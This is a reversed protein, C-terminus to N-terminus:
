MFTRRIVKGIRKTFSLGPRTEYLKWPLLYDFKFKTNVPLDRLIGTVKQEMKEDVRIIKNIPDEEGFLAKATSETIIIASPDTSVQRINGKLLPFDFMM